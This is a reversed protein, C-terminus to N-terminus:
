LWLNLPPCPFLRPCYYSLLPKDVRVISSPSRPLGSFCFGGCPRLALPKTSGLVRHTTPQTTLWSPDRAGPPRMKSGLFSPARGGPSSRSPLLIAASQSHRCNCEATLQTSNDKTYAPPEHRLVARGGAVSSGGCHARFCVPRAQMFVVRAPARHLVPLLTPRLPATKGGRVSVYATPSRRYPIPKVPARSQIRANTKTVMRCPPCGKPATTPQYPHRKDGNAQAPNSQDM